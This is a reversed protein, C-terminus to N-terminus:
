ESKGWEYLTGDDNPRAVGQFGLTVGKLTERVVSEGEVTIRDFESEELSFQDETYEVRSAMFYMGDEFDIRIKAFM